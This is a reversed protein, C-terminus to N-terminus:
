SASPPSVVPPAVSGGGQATLTVVPSEPVALGMERMAPLNGPDSCFELFLQPDNEFRARTKADMALFSEQADQIAMLASAYDTVATFDGYQPVRVSQPLHGTVGFRKLLTNIDADISHEQVTLSEGMQDPPIAAEDSAKEVDYDFHKRFKMM